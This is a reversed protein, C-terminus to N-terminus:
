YLPRVRSNRFRGESVALFRLNLALIAPHEWRNRCMTVASGDRKCDARMIPLWAGLV